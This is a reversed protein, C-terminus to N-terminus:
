PQNENSDKGEKQNAEDIKKAQDTEDVYRVIASIMDYFHEPLKEPKRNQKFDM